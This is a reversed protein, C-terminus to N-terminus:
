NAKVRLFFIFWAIFIVIGGVYLPTEPALEAALFGSLIPPIAQALSQVSMNIGLIEGQKSASTRNSVLAPLHAMALGNAFAFLPIIFLLVGASHPFYFALITLSSFILAIRLVSIDNFRSSVFRAILGQVLVIWIGGYGLYLGIAKEGLGFRHIMYVSFFTAFFAFGAQFFFNTVFIARMSKMSYAKVIHKIAIFWAPRMGNDLSSRTEPFILYILIVDLMALFATAMFPTFVGLLSFLKYNTLLGVLLPGTIFGLGYAAGILGFNKARDKEPTLDAIAAQAVSINGGTIGGIARAIFLITLSKSFLGFIFLLYCIATGSLAVTLIKKRGYIDSLEGLVPAAFFQMVPWIGILIGYIIYGYSIPMGHPLLFLPSEPNAFLQPLVPILIGVSVMDIFVTFFLIPLARRNIKALM